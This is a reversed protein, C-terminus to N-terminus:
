VGGGADRLVAQVRGPTKANHVDVALVNVGALVDSALALGLMAAYEGPPKAEPPDTV